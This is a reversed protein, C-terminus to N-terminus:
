SAKALDFELRDNFLDFEEKIKDIDNNEIYSSVKEMFEPNNYKFKSYFKKIDLQRVTKIRREYVSFRSAYEDFENRPSDTEELLKWKQKNNVYESDFFADGQIEEAFVLTLYLKNMLDGFIKYMQDGGIVFIDKKGRSISYVDALYLADTTNNVWNITTEGERFLYNDNQKVDQRTIVINNRNPLLRGISEFTNRGM